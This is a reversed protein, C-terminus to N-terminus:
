AIPKTRGFSIVQYSMTLSSSLQQSSVSSLFVSSSSSAQQRAVEPQCPAGRHETPWKMQSQLPYAPATEDLSRRIFSMSPQLATTQFVLEKRKKTTARERAQFSASPVSTVSDLYRATRIEPLNPLWLWRLGGRVLVLRECLSARATSWPVASEIRVM